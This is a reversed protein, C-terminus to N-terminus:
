DQSTDSPPSGRTRILFVIALLGVLIALATAGMYVYAAIRWQDSPRAAYFSSAMAIGSMSFAGGLIGLTLAFWALWRSRRRRM